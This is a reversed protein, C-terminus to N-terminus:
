SGEAVVDKRIVTDPRMVAREKLAIHADSESWGLGNKYYQIWERETMPQGTGAHAILAQSTPIFSAELRNKDKLAIDDTVEKVFGLLADALAKTEGPPMSEALKIVAERQLDIFQQQQPTVIREYFNEIQTMLNANVAAEDLTAVLRDSRGTRIMYYIGGALGLVTVFVAGIFVWSANMFWELLLDIRSLVEDDELAPDDPMPTVVVETPAETPEPVATDDQGMVPMIFLMAMLMALIFRRSRNM